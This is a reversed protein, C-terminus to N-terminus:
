GANSSYLYRFWRSNHCLISNAFFNGTEPAEIDYMHIREATETIKAVMDEGNIKQLKDGPKMEAAPLYQGNVLFLHEGSTKIVIGTETELRYAIKEGSDWIRAIPTFVNGDRGKSFVYMNEGSSFLDFAEKITLEKQKGDNTRYSSITNPALSRGGPLSMEPAVIAAAGAYRQRKVQKKEEAFEKESKDWVAQFNSTAEKALDPGGFITKVDQFTLGMVLARMANKTAGLLLAGVYNDPVNDLSYSTGPAQINIQSMSDSLFQLMSGTPFYRWNYSGMIKDTDHQPVTFNVTGTAYDLTFGDSVIEGNRRIQAGLNWRPWNFYYIGRTADRRPVENAVVIMNANGIYCNLADIMGTARQSPSVPTPIGAPIVSIYTTSINPIGQVTGTILATYVDVPLSNPIAWDYYYFGTYGPPQLMPAPPLIVVANRGIVEITADPVDTAMGSPTSFSATLTAIQGQAYTLTDPM